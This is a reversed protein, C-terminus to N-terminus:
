KKLKEESSFCDYLFFAAVMMLWLHVKLFKRISQNTNIFKVVAGKWGKPSPLNLFGFIAVELALIFFFITYVFEIM